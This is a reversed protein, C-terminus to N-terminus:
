QKQLFASVSGEQAAKQVECLSISELTQALNRPAGPYKAVRDKLFSELDARLGADCFSSGIYPLYAGYEQPLKELLRDINKKVFDYAVLRTRRNALGSWLINISERSDFEDSLILNLAQSLLDPDKFNGLAGLLRMRDRPDKSAKAAALYRDFIARDGQSATIFLATGLINPDVPKRAELWGLALDKAEACLIPDEAEKAVLGVLNQRLLKRGEDEGAKPTLGLERAKAGFTAQIFRVYNPRLDERVLNASIGWAIGAMSSVVQWQPDQAFRPVLALAEDMPLAGTEVASSVDRFVGVREAASLAKAGDKLLNGLLDGQYITSYYGSMDENVLLYDLQDTAVPLFIDLDAKTMLLKTRHIKGGVAYRICIPVQWTQQATGKSGAPLFRKQSLLLKCHSNAEAKVRVTILPVGAQDLFTSFAAPLGKDGSGALASLFDETTANGYAHKRLYARVGQRFRNEGLRAEFMALVASGKTYTIGDFANEIDDKTEIPQRIMRATVLSDSGMAWGRQSVAKIRGEWEPKWQDVIKAEMWSAFAENLWLDNWWSMTVLDGFWMHAMEHAATEACGRMFGISYDQPRALLISASYTILGANEMAGDMQPVALYDLKEYPYPMGFYCELLEFLKPACEVAYAAEAAHGKPVVIRIPTKKMGARGADVIEFPGVGMAVLYSPLPKTPAFRFAVLGAADKRHSLEPTNSVALNGEPVRLTLQWPVKFSPEDFCPFAKRAYTSEFQSYAYWHDNDKQTFLGHSDKRSFTGEFHIRLLGQGPKLPRDFALGLFDSGEMQPKAALPRGGKPTFSAEQIKLESANLWLIATAKKIETDIAITGSFSEQDPRLTLDL